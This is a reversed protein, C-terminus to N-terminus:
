WFFFCLYCSFSGTVPVDPVEGRRTAEEEWLRGDEDEDARDAASMDGMAALRISTASGSGRPPASASGHQMRLTVGM